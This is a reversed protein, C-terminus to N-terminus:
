QIDNQYKEREKEFLNLSFVRPFAERLVLANHALQQKAYVIQLEQYSQYLRITLFLSIRFGSLYTLTM